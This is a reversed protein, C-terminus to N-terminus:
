PTKRVNAAQLGKLGQITDFEVAEGEARSRFGESAIAAARVLLSVSARQM